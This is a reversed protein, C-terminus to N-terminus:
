KTTVVAARAAPCNFGSQTVTSDIVASDTGGMARALDLNDLARLVRITEGRVQLKRTIKKM